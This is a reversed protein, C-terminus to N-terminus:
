KGQIRQNTSFYGCIFQSKKVNIESEVAKAITKM